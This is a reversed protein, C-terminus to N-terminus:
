LSDILEKLSKYGLDCIYQRMKESYCDEYGDKEISLIFSQIGKIQQIKEEDHQNLCSIADWFLKNKFTRGVTLHRYGDEQKIVNIGTIRVHNSINLNYSRTKQNNLQLGYKSLITQAILKVQKEIDDLKSQVSTKFSVIIDDAYRTYIINDLNLQKLKGFFICDFDKLYINSLVPSTVFGLPLGRSSVSCLDVIDNCEKKSILNDSYLNIENFMKDSLQKHCIHPFFDKIDFMIFYDNYMHALANHYISKGKVYGKSFKSPIFVKSLFANIKEHKIRLECDDSRYAVIKRIKNKTKIYRVVIDPHDIKM